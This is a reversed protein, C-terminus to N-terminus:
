FYLTLRNSQVVNRDFKMIKAKFSNDSCLLIVKGNPFEETFTALDAVSPPNRWM